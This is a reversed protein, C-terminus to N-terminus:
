NAARNRRRVLMVAGWVALAIITLPILYGLGVIVAGIVRLFGQLSRSWASGLSPQHVTVTNQAQPADKERIEVKISSEAVQNDIYKIQGQLQEIGLEVRDIQSGLSLIEGVSAATAQLGELRAKTGQAISLQAKLNVYQATVDQGTVDQYLISSPSVGLARLRLMAVDFHKAPIRLTFTGTKENQTSSALVMGGNSVAVRTVAAVNKTFTGNPVQIGIQGDREIKSLDSQPVGAPAKISGASGTAPNLTATQTTGGSQNNDFSNPALGRFGPAPAELRQRPAATGSPFAAAPASSNRPQTLFGVGGALLLLAVVAAAVGGWNRGRRPLRRPTSGARGGGAAAAAEADLERQIEEAEENTAVERLDEELLQLYRINSNV